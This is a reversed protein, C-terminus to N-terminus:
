KRRAKIAAKAKAIRESGSARAREGASKARERAKDLRDKGKGRASALREDVKARLQRKKGTLGTKNVTEDGGTEDGGEVPKEGAVVGGDALRKLSIAMSLGVAKEMDNTIEFFLKAVPELSQQWDGAESRKSVEEKRRQAEATEVAEVPVPDDDVM